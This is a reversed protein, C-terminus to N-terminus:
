PWVMGNGKLKRLRKWVQVFEQVIQAPPVRMGTYRCANHCAKYYNELVGRKMDSSLFASLSPSPLALCM